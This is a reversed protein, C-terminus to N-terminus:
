SPPTSSHSLRLCLTPPCSAVTPRVNSATYSLTQCKIIETFPSVFLIIIFIINPKSILSLCIYILARLKDTQKTSCPPPSAFQVAKLTWPPHHLQRKIQIEDDSRREFDSTSLCCWWFEFLLLSMGRVGHWGAKHTLGFCCCHIGCALGTGGFSFWIM